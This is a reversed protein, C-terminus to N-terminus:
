AKNKYLQNLLSNAQMGPVQALARGALPSAAGGLLDAGGSFGSKRAAEIAQDAIGMVFPDYASKVLDSMGTMDWQKPQVLTPATPLGTLQPGGNAAPNTLNPAGPLSPIGPMSPLGPM